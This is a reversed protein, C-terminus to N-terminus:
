GAARGASLVPESDVEDLFDFGCCEPAVYWVARRRGRSGALERGAESAPLLPGLNTRRCFSAATAADNCPGEGRGNAGDPSRLWAPGPELGFCMGM